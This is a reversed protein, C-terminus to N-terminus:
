IYIYICVYRYYLLGQEPEASAAQIHCMFITCLSLLLLLLLLLLTLSINIYEYTYIYYLGM